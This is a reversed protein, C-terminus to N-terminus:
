KKEMGKSAGSGPKTACCFASDDGCAKCSHKLETHAGKQVGVVEITSQCGPCLHKEGVTVIPSTGKATKKEVYSVTISKCKTCAMAIMDGPKLAAAQETTKIQNLEVLKQGGKPQDAAQTTPLLAATTLVVALSSILSLRGINNNRKKVTKGKTLEMSFARNNAKTVSWAPQRSSVTKQAASHRLAFREDSRAFVSPRQIFM